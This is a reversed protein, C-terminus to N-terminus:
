FICINCPKWEIRINYIMIKNELAKHKFFSLSFSSSFTITLDKYFIFSYASSNFAVKSSIYSSILPSFHNSFTQILIMFTIGDIGITLLNM